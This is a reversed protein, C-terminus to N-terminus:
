VAVMAAALAGPTTDNVPETLKVAVPSVPQVVWVILLPTAVQTNTHVVVPVRATM